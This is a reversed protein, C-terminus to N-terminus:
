PDHPEPPRTTSAQRLRLAQEVHHRTPRDTGDLDAVTWALRLVTDVGHRSLAGAQRARRLPGNADASLTVTHLVKVPVSANAMDDTDTSPAADRWRAAARKRATAVRARTHALMREVETTEDACPLRITVATDPRLRIDLADLLAPALRSQPGSSRRLCTAFLQLHAPYRLHHGDSVLLITRHLLAARLSDLASDTFRDLEPTVLLGRHARSIAGPAAGGVLSGISDGHHVTVMPPTRVLVAGDECQGTLSRIAAAELQRPRTLDPLLHHLWRAALLTSTSDLAELLLHHGGAAAVEVAHRVPNSLARTPPLLDEATPVPRATQRRLSTDNGRLWSAIETLWRAGLVEIGDVLTAQSLASAPVIVRRIGLTRAAQVAPLTGLTPRVSGDLGLEGLVATSALRRRAVGTTAALVAVAVAAAPPQSDTTSLHVEVCDNRNPLGSNNLAAHVRDRLDRYDCSTEGILTFTPRPGNTVTAAVTMLHGTLGHLYVTHVTSM